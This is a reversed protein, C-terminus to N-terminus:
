NDSVGWISLQKATNQGLNFPEITVKATDMPLDFPTTSVKPQALMAALIAVAVVSAPFWSPIRLAGTM